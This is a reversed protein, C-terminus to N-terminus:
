SRYVRSRGKPRRDTSAMRAVVKETCINGTKDLHGISHHILAVGSSDDAAIPRQSEPLNTKRKVERLRYHSKKRRPAQIENYGRHPCQSPHDIYHRKARAM